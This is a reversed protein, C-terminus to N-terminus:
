ISDVSNSCKICFTTNYGEAVNTLATVTWPAEKKMTLHKTATYPWKCEEAMLECKDFQCNEWDGVEFYKEYTKNAVDSTSDFGVDTM